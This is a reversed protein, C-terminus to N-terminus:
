PAGPLPAGAALAAGPKLATLGFVFTLRLGSPIALFSPNTHPFSLGCVVGVTARLVFVVGAPLEPCTTARLPGVSIVLSGPAAGADVRTGEVRGAVATV